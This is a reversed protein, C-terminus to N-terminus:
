SPSVIGKEELGATDMAAVLDGIWLGEQIEQMHTVGPAEFEEEDEEEKEFVSITNENM